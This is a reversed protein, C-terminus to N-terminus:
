EKFLTQKILAAQEEPTAMLLPEDARSKQTGGELLPMFDGPMAAPADETRTKGAYNAVTACVMGARFDARLEGIPELHLFAYWETLQPSTLSALLM